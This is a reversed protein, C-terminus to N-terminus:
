NKIDLLFLNMLLYADERKDKKQEIQSKIIRIHRLKKLKGVM